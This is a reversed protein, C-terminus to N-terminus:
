SGSALKAVAALHDNAASAHQQVGAVDPPDAKCADNALGIEDVAAESEAQLDDSPAPLTKEFKTGASNLSRCASVMASTDSAGLASALKTMADSMASFPPTAKAVWTNMEQINAADSNTQASVSSPPRPAPRGLFHPRPVWPEATTTGATAMPSSALQTGAGVVIATAVGVVVAFAGAVGTWKRFQRHARRTGDDERTAMFVEKV